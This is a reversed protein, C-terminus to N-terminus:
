DCRLFCSVQIKTIRYEVEKSLIHRATNRNEESRGSDPTSDILPLLKAATGAEVVGDSLELFSCLYGCAVIVHHIGKGIRFTVIILM